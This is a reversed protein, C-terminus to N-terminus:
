YGQSRLLIVKGTHAEMIVGISMPQQSPYVLIHLHFAQVPCKARCVYNGKWRSHLGHIGHCPILM